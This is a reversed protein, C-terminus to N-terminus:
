GAVFRYLIWGQEVKSASSSYDFRSMRAYKLAKDVMCSSAGSSQGADYTASIVKGSQDVKVAIYVTGSGGDCTYGPNRVYWNNNKYASHANVDFEVMTMGKPANKGTNSNAAANERAERERQEREKQERDRRDEIMQQIKAREEAGGAEEYMQKELESLDAPDTQANEGYDEDSQDRQDNRDRSMNLLDVSEFNEPIIMDEAKLEVESNATEVIPGDEFPEYIEFRQFSQLHLYLFIFLYVGCASFIGIKYKDLFEFFQGM